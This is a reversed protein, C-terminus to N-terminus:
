PTVFLQVCSLLQASSFISNQYAHSNLLVSKKELRKLM